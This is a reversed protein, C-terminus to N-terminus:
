IYTYTHTHKNTVKMKKGEKPFHRMYINKKNIVKKLM